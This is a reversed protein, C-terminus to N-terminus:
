KEKKLPTYKKVKSIKNKYEGNVVINNYHTIEERTIGESKYNEFLSDERGILHVTTIKPVVGILKNFYLMRLFFERSFSLKIDKKLGGVEKFSETKFTGGSIIFTDNEKCTKIDLFGLKDTFGSAWPSENVLMVEKDDKKITVISLIGDINKYKDTNIYNKLSFLSNSTLIDDFELITFYETDINNVGFNIQTCFDTENTNIIIDVSHDKKIDNSISKPEIVKVEKPKVRQKKVSELALNLYEKISNNYKHVPILITTDIINHM